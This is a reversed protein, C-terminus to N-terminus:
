SDTAGPRRCCVSVSVLRTSHSQFVCSLRAVQRVAAQRAEGAPMRGAEHLSLAARTPHARSIARGPRGCIRVPPIAGQAGDRRRVRQRPDEAPAPRRPGSRPGSRCACRRSGDPRSSPAGTANFTSCASAGLCGPARWPKPRSPLARAPRRCGFTQSSSSAPSNSPQGNRAMRSTSPGVEASRMVATFRECSPPSAVGSGSSGAAM